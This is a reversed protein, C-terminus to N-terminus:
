LLQPLFIRGEERATSRERHDADGRRDCRVIARGLNPVKAPDRLSHRGLREPSSM